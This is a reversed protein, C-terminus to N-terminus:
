FSRAFSIGVRDADLTPVVSVTERSKPSGAFWLVAAGVIAAGGAVFGINAYLADRRATKNLDVGHADGCASAPCIMNAQNEVSTAKLGFGVGGGAAAISAVALVISLKRAGTLGSPAPRAAGADHAESSESANAPPAARKPAPRKDLVPLEIKKSKTKVIVSTSWPEYGPAEGSIQYEDPDVPVRQDWLEPDIVTENRKIVLGEVRSEEPVSITLYILRPELAAARRRAEAERDSNGAHKASAAAKVFMAWATALQGNKERCDALNLETGDTPELRDSADLKDCAQAIQGKKMLRKGERFLTEAEASQARAPAAFAMTIAFAGLATLPTVFSARTATMM